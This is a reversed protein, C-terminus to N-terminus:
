SRGCKEHTPLSVDRHEHLGGCGLRSVLEALKPRGARSTPGSSRGNEYLVDDLANEYAETAKDLAQQRESPSSARIAAALHAMFTGDLERGRAQSRAAGLAPEQTRNKREPIDDREITEAISPPEGLPHM